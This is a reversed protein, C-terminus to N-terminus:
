DRWLSACSRQTSGASVMARSSARVLIKYDIRAFVDAWDYYDTQTWHDFPHNHCKACQLRTGLFLQATAEARTVADRNARHFNAPPNQYTSGRASVLERVFQDLPKNEVLSRRIWHYYAQVGKRDLVKEENRLVDSWKLAWFETFEPRELLADILKARKDRRKDTAFARAEGATPLLGLLDLCARRIFESDTCLPSANLRLTKLKAFVHDDIFNNAPTKRWAFDPRAPIFALRVPAQKDLYRVLVTTEVPADCTALGDHSVKLATSAPEYVALSTVDRETGDSFFARARLQAEKVPEVLIRDVPSVEIRALKPATDADDGAGDAIWRRLMAYEPSDKRFRLGGEHALQTTAKVLLLSQDPDNPNVRRAFMDRTIAKLDFEADEGRLSLKFGAKGNQNGHCPGSNCGAKSLVAMVDHRFSVPGPSEANACAPRMALATLLLLAIRQLLVGLRRTTRPLPM